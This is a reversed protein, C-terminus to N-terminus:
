TAPLNKRTPTAPTKEGAAFLLIEGSETRSSIGFGDHLAELFGQPDDTFFRGGLRVSALSSDALALQRPLYRNFESLADGLTMGDFIIEGRRWADLREAEGSALPAEVLTAGTATLAHGPLLAREAGAGDAIRARGSLAVLRARAHYLRMNYQGMDLVARIARARLVFPRVLDSAVTIAAEGQELWFERREGFRWAIRSNTNLDAHSGDPLRVTRREGIATEAYARQDWLLMTAGIAVAAGGAVASGLLGRRTVRTTAPQSPPPAVDSPMGRLEGTRQWTAAVQAFVSAHRPDANRWADFAADDATGADLRVLWAAAQDVLPDNAKEEFDM